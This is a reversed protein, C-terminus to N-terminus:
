ETIDKKGSAIDALIKDFRRRGALFAQLGQPTATANRDNNSEAFAALEAPTPPLDPALDQTERLTELVGKSTGTSTGKKQADALRKRRAYQKANQERRANVRNFIDAKALLAQATVKSPLSAETIGEPIWVNSLAALLRCSDLKAYVSATKSGLVELLVAEIKQKILKRL